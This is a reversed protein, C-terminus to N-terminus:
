DKGAFDSPRSTYLLCVKIHLTGKSTGGGGRVRVTMTMTQPQEPTTWRIWALQSDGSPYYVEGVEYSRGGVSFTVSVPHDPDSQGGSVEVATIM